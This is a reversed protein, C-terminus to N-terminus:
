LKRITNKADIFLGRDIDVAVILSFLLITIFGILRRAQPLMVAPNKIIIFVGGVLGCIIVIGSSTFVEARIIVAKPNIIAISIIFIVVLM